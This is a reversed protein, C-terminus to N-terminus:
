SLIEYMVNFMKNPSSSSTRDVSTRLWWFTFIKCTRYWMFQILLDLKKRDIIPQRTVHLFAFWNDVANPFTWVIWHLDFSTLTPIGPLYSIEPLYFNELSKHCRMKILVFFGHKQHLNFTMQETTHIEQIGYSLFVRKLSHITETFTPRHYICSTHMMNSLRLTLLPCLLLVKSTFIFAWM